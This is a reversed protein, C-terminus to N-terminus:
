RHLRRGTAVVDHPNGSTFEFRKRNPKPHKDPLEIFEAAILGEPSRMPTTAGSSQIDAVDAIRDVDELLPRRLCKGDNDEPRVRM